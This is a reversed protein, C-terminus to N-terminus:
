PGPTSADALQEYTKPQLRFGAMRRKAPRSCVFLCLLLPGVIFLSRAIADTVSNRVLIVLMPLAAAFVIQIGESKKNALFYEWLFRVAIGIAFDYLVITLWGFDSYFDGFMAGNFSARQGGKPPFLRNIVKQGAAQPKNNKGILSRPLPYALTALITQAPSFTLANTKSHYAEYELELVSFEALDVGTAFHSLQHPIHTFAGLTETVIPKRSGVTRTALLINLGLVALIVLALTTVGRPRKDTRLYPFVVLPLVLALVYTRDGQPVSVFIAAALSGIFLIFTKLTRLRAFAFVFIIAAPITLYPGLGVYGSVALFTQFSTTTRGLYFHFLNGFGVTAGFAATLIACFVLVWIGFRVSREPEWRDAARPARLAGSRGLYVAYGAYTSLVGVLSIAAAGTFGNRAYQNDFYTMGSILEAAPRVGYLVFFTLALIQIPEFPDFKGQVVRAIVPTLCAIPLLIALGAQPHVVLLDGGFGAVLGLVIVGGIALTRAQLRQANAAVGM